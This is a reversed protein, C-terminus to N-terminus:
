QKEAQLSLAPLQVDGVDKMRHPVKLEGSRILEKYREILDPGGPPLLKKTYRMPSIGV